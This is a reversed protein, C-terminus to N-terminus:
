KLCYFDGHYKSTIARLLALLKKVAIYHWREGNPTMLLIIEKIVYFVNIKMIRQLDKKIEEHNLVVKVAYQFCKNNKIDILNIIAKKNKIWHPSDIYSEVIKPCIKHCEQYFLHVNDYVFESGKIPEELNNQCRKKLSKFLEKITEDSKDNIM